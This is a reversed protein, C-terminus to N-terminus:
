YKGFDGFEELIETIGFVNVIVWYAAVVATPLYLAILIVALYVRELRRRM